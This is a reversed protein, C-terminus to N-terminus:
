EPYGAQRLVDGRLAHLRALTEEEDAAILWSYGVMDALIAALCCTSTM